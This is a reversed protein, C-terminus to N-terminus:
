ARLNRARNNPPDDWAHTEITASINPHPKLGEPPSGGEMFDAGIIADIVTRASMIRHNLSM